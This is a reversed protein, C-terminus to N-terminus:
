KSKNLCCEVSSKELTLSYICVLIKKSESQMMIKKALSEFDM